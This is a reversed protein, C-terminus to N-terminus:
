DELRPPEDPSDPEEPADTKGRRLSGLLLTAMALLFEDILPIPDPIFINIVFVVATILFLYPFRLKSLYRMVPALFVTTPGPM